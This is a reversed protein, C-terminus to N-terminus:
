SKRVPLILQSPREADHYVTNLAKRTHTHYGIPEGTNPNPDYTPFNSSSIDLRIRHGKVFRNGTMWLDIEIPVVEGPTVFEAKELGNRYRLRLISDQLLLAFGYPYDTSPPYQDILKATFDTDLADTSVHLKVKLPGIVEVDNELADTEFVLVDTRSALPLRDTCGPHVPDCVQDQPGMRNRDALTFAFNYDGGLQPCPQEPDYTFSTSSSTAQPAERTLRGNGQLHFATEQVGPLPWFPGEVWYGGHDLRGATNRHGSGGGGVFVVASTEAGLVGTDIGKLFQDFFALRIPNWDVAAAVGFEVAGAM